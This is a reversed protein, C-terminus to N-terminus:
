PKKSDPPLGAGGDPELREAWHVTDGTRMRGSHIVRLCFGSSRGLARAMGRRTLRELYGCPPRPAVVALIAEGVRIRSGVLQRRRLGRIVLNRRHEGSSLPLRSRRQIRDVDEARILTVACADPGLWYGKGEAYRDGALGGPEARVAAVAEMPAGAGPAM